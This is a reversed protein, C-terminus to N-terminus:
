GTYIVEWGEERGGRRGGGEERRRRKKGGGEGEEGREEEGEEERGRGERGRRRGIERGCSMPLINLRADSATSSSVFSFGEPSTMSYLVLSKRLINSTHVM